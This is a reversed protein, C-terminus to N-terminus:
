DYKTESLSLGLYLTSPSNEPLPSTDSSLYNQHLFQQRAISLIQLPEYSYGFEFSDNCTKNVMHLVVPVQLHM